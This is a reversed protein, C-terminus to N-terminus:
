QSISYLLSLASLSRTSAVIDKNIGTEVMDIFASLTRRFATFNDSVTFTKLESNTQSLYDVKFTGRFFSSCTLRFISNDDLVLEYIPYDNKGNLLTAQQFDCDKVSFVLDLMHIGYKVLDNAVHASIYNSERLSEKHIDVEYAYRFGSGTYLLGKSFYPILGDLELRSATLPKDCFCPIGSELFFKLINNRNNWDDRAIIIADQDILEEYNRCLTPIRCSNQIKIAREADQCWIKNVVARSSLFDSSPKTMLYSKIINWEPDFNDPHFGNIISGFSYPHGNLESYGILGIKIVM